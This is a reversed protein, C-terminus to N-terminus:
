NYKLAKKALINFDITKNGAAYAAYVAANAANVAAAYAADAATYAAAADATYSAAYAAAINTITSFHIIKNSRDINNLWNYAWEVYSKESYVQLSCLIGFAIRQNITIQPIPLEKIITMKTCGGKLGKDNLHNGLAKVEFLRPNSFNSHKINLLIALLPSHYYHLFGPSCLNGKGSTTKPQGIEWKCNDYTMMEQDTLKYKKM